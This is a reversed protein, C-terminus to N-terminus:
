ILYRDRNEPNLLFSFNFILLLFLLLPSPHNPLLLRVRVWGSFRGGEGEGKSM